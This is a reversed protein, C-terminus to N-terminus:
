VKASCGAWRSTSVAVCRSIHQYCGTKPAYRGPLVRSLRFTERMRPYRCRSNMPVQYQRAAGDAGDLGSPVARSIGPDTRAGLLRTAQDEDLEEFVDAELEPDAHVRGLIETEEERPAEELLDAIQAPNLRRIRAFPGRLLASGAHGVLWEFDHWDRFQADEPEARQGLLGFMRRPRLRTDVSALAWGGDDRAM